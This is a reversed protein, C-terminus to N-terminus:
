WLKCKDQRNMTADVPCNFERQFDESNGLPGIVRFRGPSHPDGLVQGLLSEPTQKECWVQSFSIFFMQESTFQTLGPLSPEQGLNEVSRKYARFSEHIGGNDAINEGQTNKGNLHADEEGLIDVLEPVTYNGYQDIFCQAQVAFAQITEDSWWPSASGTGDYQRGQDDFGHTIEHGIVMGIAGYNLFRPWGGKFFPPQLIGAPFTITNHNPSYWANVIAPHMLWIDRQPEERLTILEQKSSWSTMGLVNNFHFDPNLPPTGSYYEDVESPVALWDPYGILQLMMDAKEKAKEQTMSDMWETEEVLEKFASRLDEVMSDAQDKAADDFNALVYEHAAAFGFGRVSTALCTQWRPSATDIGTLVSKYEFLIDTMEKNLDPVFSMLSRWYLYNALIRDDVDMEQLAAFYDPQVVILREDDGVSVSTDTFAGEFYASWDFRPYNEKLESILMPNYQATSNRRESDPTMIMAIQKEFEFLEDAKASLTEESVGTGMERVLVKATEIIFTKYASIYEAYSEEDLYMSLPLGLDPQDIYIVNKETNLDDLYVWLSLLLNLNLYRRSKGTAAAVDFKEATWSDQVMPYGGFEGNPGFSSVLPELGVGQIAETDMCGKFMRRLSKVADSESPEQPSQSVIAKLDNDVQDRLEYFRGWKNRGDPIVNSEVWGGCAFQFFDECPDATIDMAQIISAAAVACEPTLCVDEQHSKGTGGTSKLQDTGNEQANIVFVGTVMMALGAAGLISLLVKEFGTRRAWWGKKQLLVAQSGSGEEAELANMM